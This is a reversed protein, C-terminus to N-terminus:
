MTGFESPGKGERFILKAEELQDNCFSWVDLWKKIGSESTDYFIKNINIYNITNKRRASPLMYVLALVARIFTPKAGETYSISIRGIQEALKAEYNLQKYYVSGRFEEYEKAMTLIM